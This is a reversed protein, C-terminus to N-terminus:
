ARKQSDLYKEMVQWQKIPWTPQTIQKTWRQLQQSQYDCCYSIYGLWGVSIWIILNNKARNLCNGM